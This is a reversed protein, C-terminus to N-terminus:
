STWCVTNSFGASLKLSAQNVRGSLKLIGRFGHWVTKIKKPKKNVGSVLRLLLSMFCLIKSFNFQKKDQLSRGKQLILPQWFKRKPGSSSSWSKWLLHPCFFRRALLFFGALYPLAGDESPSWQATGKHKVSRGSSAFYFFTSVMSDM